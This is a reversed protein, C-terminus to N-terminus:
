VVDDYEVEMKEIDKREAQIFYFCDIPTDTQTGVYIKNNEIHDVYIQQFGKNPTLQVTITDEDVLGLWYDPLEIVDGELRGRIYVGHEPGELSGHKLRKGEETPHEIDFSKATASLTGTVTVGTSSTTLKASNNHYLIVEGNDVCTIYEENGAANRLKINSGLLRLEGTGADAVYSNSGDHYIELDSGAGLILKVDDRPLLFNGTDGEIMATVNVTGDSETNGQNVAFRIDDGDRQTRLDLHNAEGEIFSAGGDGGVRILGSNTNGIRVYGSGNARVSANNSVFLENVYMSASVQANGIVHLPHSPSTTGIGVRGDKRIRMAETLTGDRSTQFTMYGDESGDTSDQINGTIRAYEHGSSASASDGFQWKIAAGYNAGTANRRLILHAENTGDYITTDGSVHLKSSPSTTGIGM